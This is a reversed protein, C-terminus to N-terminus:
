WRWDKLWSDPDKKFKVYEKNIDKLTYCAADQYAFGIEEIDYRSFFTNNHFSIFYEKIFEALKM